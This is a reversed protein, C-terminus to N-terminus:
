VPPRMKKFKIRRLNWRYGVIAAALAFFVIFMPFVLTSNQGLLPKEVIEPEGHPSSDYSPSPSPGPGPGPGGGSTWTGIIQVNSAPMDFQSSANPVVTTPVYKWGTFTYGPRIWQGQYPHATTNVASLTEVTIVDNVNYAIGDTYTVSSGDHLYYTVTYTPNPTWVPYLNVNAAPMPFDDGFVYDISTGSSSTNNWGVFAHNAKALDTNDLVDVADGASYPSLSDVPPTGSDGSGLHYTVVYKGNVIWVPYLDTNATIVFTNSAVYDATINGPGTKSWGVFTHTANVFDINDLVIVTSGSYYPSLGDVPTTGSDADDDHYTVTYKPNETWVPYLNVNAAPMFFSNGSVYDVTGSPGSTNWGAFAHNTKILSGESLVIVTSGSYYPSLGDVPATGGTSGDDHYTVTYKSDEIWVPYLDTNSTITFTAIATYDVTGSPGSTNWGAFVHNTKILSGEPLVTVTSGSYYPSLSDVPATGGTSGDDHYTVTYKSDEIWVPYLDTNSTITFTAAATYDVTGSPGSTNWGAFAHNTKILSGESLVTVTSGSYYPSLSDVPATGGTSGDDHYTVTYQPVSIWKAYLIIDNTVANTDFDWKTGSDYTSTTYWGELTDTGKTTAPSPETILSNVPVDSVVLLENSFSDTQSRDYTLGSFPPTAVIEAIPDFTGGMANYTVSVDAGGDSWQAYLDVGTGAPNFLPYDINFVDNPLFSFGSGDAETNWGIFTEGTKKLINVGDGNTGLNDLVTVNFGLPYPNLSDVPVDGTGGNSFYTVNFLNWTDAAYYITVDYDNNNLFTFLQPSYFVYTNFTTSTTIGGQSENVVIKYPEYIGGWSGYSVIKYWDNLLIPVNTTVAKIEFDTFEDPSSAVNDFYHHTVPVNLPKSWIAYLIKDDDMFITNAYNIGPYYSQGSGDAKDNWYILEYGSKQLNSNPQVIAYSGFPYAINDVPVSGSDAGNADYTLTYTTPNGKVYYYHAEYTKGESFQYRANTTNNGLVNAPFPAKDDWITRIYSGGASTITSISKPLPVNNYFLNLINEGANMILIDYQNSSTYYSSSGDITYGGFTSDPYVYDNVTAKSGDLVMYTEFSFLSPSSYIPGSYQSVNLWSSSEIVEIRVLDYGSKDRKWGNLNTYDTYDAIKGETFTEEEVIGDMYHHTVPIGYKYNIVLVYHLGEEFNYEYNSFGIDNVVNVPNGQLYTVPNGILPYPANFTFALGYLTNSIKMISSNWWDEEEPEILFSSFADSVTVTGPTGSINYNVQTAYVSADFIDGLIFTEDHFSWLSPNSSSNYVINLSTTEYHLTMSDYIYDYGMYTTNKRNEFNNIGSSIRDANVEECDYGPSSQSILIGDYNHIVHLYSYPGPNDIKEYHILVQYRHESEFNYLDGINILDYSSSFSTEVHSSLTTGGYCFNSVYNSLNDRYFEENGFGDPNLLQGDLVYSGYDYYPNAWGLLGSDGYVNTSYGYETYSFLSLDYGNISSNYVWHNIEGFLTLDIIEIKTVAYTGAKTWTWDPLPQVGSSISRNTFLNLNPSSVDLVPGNGDNDDYYHGIDVPIGSSIDGIDSYASAVGLLPAMGAFNSTFIFLVLVFTLLKNWYSKGTASM